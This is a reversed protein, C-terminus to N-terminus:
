YKGYFFFIWNDIIISLIGCTYYVPMINIIVTINRRFGSLVLSTNLNTKRLSKKTGFGSPCWTWIALSEQLHEAETGALKMVDAWGARRRAASPPVFSYYISFLLFLYIFVFCRQEDKFYPVAWPPLWFYRPLTLSFPPYVRTLPQESVTNWRSLTSSRFAKVPAFSKAWFQRYM